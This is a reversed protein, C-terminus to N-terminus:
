KKKDENWHRSFFRSSIRAPKPSAFGIKALAKVIIKLMKLTKINLWTIHRRDDYSGLHIEQPSHLYPPSWFVLMVSFWVVTEILNCAFCIVKFQSDLLITSSIHWMSSFEYIWWVFMLGVHIILLAYLVKRFWCCFVLKVDVFIQNEHNM